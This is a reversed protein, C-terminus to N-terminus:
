FVVDDDGLVKVQLAAAKFSSSTLNGDVNPDLSSAGDQKSDVHSQRQRWTESEEATQALLREAQTKSDFHTATLVNGENYFRAVLRFVYEKLQLSSNILYIM